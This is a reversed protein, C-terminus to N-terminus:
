AARDAGLGSQKQVALWETVEKLASAQELRLRDAEAGEARRVEFEMYIDPRLLAKSADTQDRAPDTM